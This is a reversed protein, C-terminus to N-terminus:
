EPEHLSAPTPGQSFNKWSVVQQMHLDIPVPSTDGEHGRSEFTIKLSLRTPSESQKNLVNM